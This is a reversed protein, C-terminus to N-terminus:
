IKIKRLFVSLRKYLLLSLVSISVTKIINFALLIGWWEAFAQEVTRGIINGGFALAYAPFIILRNVMLATLTGIVCAGLLCLMVVKLGKKYRYVISPLLIYAITIFVNALEGVGSTLSLGFLVRMGEKLACVLVGEVPGLLFSILLIFVNGFDLKLFPVAPFLPPLELLSIVFALATFVAMLALRKASFRKKFDIKRSKKNEELDTCAGINKEEKEISQM